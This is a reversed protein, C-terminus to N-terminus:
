DFRLGDLALRGSVSGILALSCGDTTNQARFRVADYSPGTALDRFVLRKPNLSRDM